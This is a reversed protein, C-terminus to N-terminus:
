LEDIVQLDNELEEEGYHVPIKRVALQHQFTVREMGCLRAAQALTVRDEQFLGLALALRVDNESLDASLIIDENISLQM